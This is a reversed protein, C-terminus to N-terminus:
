TFRLTAGPFKTAVLRSLPPPEGDGTRGRTAVMPVQLNAPQPPVGAGVMGWPPSMLDVVIVMLLLAANQKAEQTMLAKLAPGIRYSGDGEVIIDLNFGARGLFKTFRHLIHGIHEADEGDLVEATTSVIGEEDTVAFTLSLRTDPQPYEFASM